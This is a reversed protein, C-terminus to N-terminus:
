SVDARKQNYSLIKIKENKTKVAKQWHLATSRVNMPLLMFIGVKFSGNVDKLIIQM